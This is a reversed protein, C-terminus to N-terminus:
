RGNVKGINSDTASEEVPDELWWGEWASSTIQKSPLYDDSASGTPDGTGHQPMVPIDARPPIRNM